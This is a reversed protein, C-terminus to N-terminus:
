KCLTEFLFLVNCKKLNPTKLALSKSVLLVLVYRKLYFYFMAKKLSRRSLDELISILVSSLCLCVFPSLYVLVSLCLCVLVYLWLCLCVSVYCVSLCLCVLISLCCRILCVSFYWSLCLSVYVFCNSLSMSDSLWSNKLNRM